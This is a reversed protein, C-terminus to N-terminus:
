APSCGSRECLYVHPQSLVDADKSAVREVNTQQTLWGDDDIPLYAHAALYAKRTSGDIHLSLRELELRAPGHREDAMVCRVRLDYQHRV